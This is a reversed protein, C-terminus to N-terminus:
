EIARIDTIFYETEGFCSGPIGRHQAYTLTVRRGMLANIKAAVVEDRVSFSFTDTSQGPPNIRSLDGEWTKCVWGGYSFKQVYGSWQGDSSHLYLTMWTYGTALLALVLVLGILFSPLKIRPFHM